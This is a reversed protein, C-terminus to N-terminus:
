SIAIHAKCNLFLRQAVLGIGAIACCHPLQSAQIFRSGVTTPRAFTPASSIASTTFPKTSGILQFVKTRERSYYSGIRQSFGEWINVKVDSANKVTKMLM